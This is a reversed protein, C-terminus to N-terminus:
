IDDVTAAARLGRMVLRAELDQAAPDVGPIAILAVNTAHIMSNRNTIRQQSKRLFININDFLTCFMTGSRILAIRLQIADDSIRAKLREV